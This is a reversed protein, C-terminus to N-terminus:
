ISGSPLFFDPTDSENVLKGLIPWELMLQAQPARSKDMSDM